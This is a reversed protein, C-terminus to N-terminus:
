KCGGHHRCMKAAHKLCKRMSSATNKVYQLCEIRGTKDERYNTRCYNLDDKVSGHEFRMEIAVKQKAWFKMPNWSHALNDLPGDPQCTSLEIDLDYWDALSAVPFSLLFLIIILRPKM